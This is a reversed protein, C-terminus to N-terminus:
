RKRLLGCSKVSDEAMTQAFTLLGSIQRENLAPVVTGEYDIESPTERGRQWFFTAIDQIPHTWSEDAFFIAILAASLKRTM